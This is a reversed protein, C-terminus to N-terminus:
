GAALQMELAAVKASLEQIAKALVPILPEGATMKYWPDDDKPISSLQVESVMEPFVKEANQARFGIRRLMDTDVNGRNKNWRFEILELGNVIDLGSLKTPAIDDKLREDSWNYAGFVTNVIELAGHGTGFNDSAVLVYNTGSGNTTGCWVNMGRLASSTGGNIVRCAYTSGDYVDLEVGVNADISGGLAWHASGNVSGVVGNAAYFYMTDGNNVYRIRGADPDGVDGFCIWCDENTNCLINIGVDTGLAAVVLEDALSSDGQTGAGVRVGSTSARLWNTGSLQFAFGDADTNNLILQGSSDSLTVTSGINFPLVISDPDLATAYLTNKVYVDTLNWRLTWVASTAPGGGLIGGGYGFLVPGDPNIGDWSNTWHVGHNEDDITRFYIANDEMQIDGQHFRFKPTTAGTPCYFDIDGGLNAGGEDIGRVVILSGTTIWGSGGSLIIHHTNDDQLMYPDNGQFQVNGALYLASSLRTTGTVSFNYTNPTGNISVHGDVHSISIGSLWSVPNGATGSSVPYWGSYNSTDDHYWAIGSGTQIYKFSGADSWINLGLFHEDAKDVFAFVDGFRANTGNPDNNLVHLVALPDVNNIGIRGRTSWTMLGNWSDDTVTGDHVVDLKLIGEGGGTGSRPRLNLSYHVPYTDDRDGIFHVQTAGDGDNLASSAFPHQAELRISARNNTDAGVIALSATADTHGEDWITIDGSPYIGVFPSTGGGTEYSYMRGDARINWHSNGISDYLIAKIDTSDEGTAARIKLTQGYVEPWMDITDPRIDSHRGLFSGSDYGHHERDYQQYISELNLRPNGYLYEDLSANPGVINKLSTLVTSDVEQAHELLSGSLSGPDDILAEMTSQKKHVITYSGAETEASLSVYPDTWFNGDTTIDLTGLTSVATPNLFVPGCDDSVLELTQDDVIKSVRYEGNNEYPFTGDHGAIIALDGVEVVGSLGGASCFVRNNHEIRDIVLGSFKPGQYQEVRQTMGANTWLGTVKIHEKTISLREVTGVAVNGSVINGDPDINRVVVETPSLYELIKLPVNQLTGLGADDCRVYIENEPDTSSFLPTIGSGFVMEQTDIYTTVGGSASGLLSEVPAFVENGISDLVSVVGELQAETPTANPGTYISGTLVFGDSPDVVVTKDVKAVRKKTLLGHQMDSNIAVQMLFRNIVRAELDEGEMMSLQGHYAVQRDPDISTSPSIDGGRSEVGSFLGLEWFIEPNADTELLLSSNEGSTSSELRLFGNDRFAVEPDPTIVANIQSIVDDLTLNGSGTFGINYQVGDVFLLFGKGSVDFGGADERRAGLITARSLLTRPRVSAFGGGFTPIIPWSGMLTPADVHGFPQGM